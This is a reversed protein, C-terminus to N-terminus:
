SIAVPTRETSPRVMFRKVLNKVSQGAYEVSWHLFSDDWRNPHMNIHVHSALESRSVAAVVDDTSRGNFAFDSSVKDRVSFRSGDWRRGTDTLYQIKSFDLDFYPEGLIGFDRYDYSQWLDKSDWKSLPSGHMCITRVEVISRFSELESAFLQIAQAVDGHTKSLVEYHYGIEHGLSAIEQIVSKKFTGPVHRFFYSSRIGLRNELLALRRAAETRRDVDHRVILVRPVQRLKGDSLYAGFSSSQYGNDTFAKLLEAARALTFDRRM